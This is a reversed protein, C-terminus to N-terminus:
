AESHIACRKNFSTGLTQEQTAGGCTFISSQHRPSASDPGPLSHYRLSLSFSFSLVLSRSLSLFLFLSLSAARHQSQAGGMGGLSVSHHVVARGNEGGGRGGTSRGWGASGRWSSAVGCGEGGESVREWVCVCERMDWAESADGDPKYDTHHIDLTETVKWQGQQM